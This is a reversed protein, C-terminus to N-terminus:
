VSVPRTPNSADLMRLHEHALVVILFVFVEVGPPGAFTDGGIGIVLLFVLIGFVSGRRRAAEQRAPSGPGVLASLTTRIVVWGLLAAGVLGLNLLVEPVAGHSSGAWPFRELLISRSALFGHGLFPHDQILTSVYDWLEVRGTLSLFEEGSQGRLLYVVIPNGNGLALEAQDFRSGIAHLGGAFAAFVTCMVLAAVVPRMRRQAWVALAGAVFGLIPTREHTGILVLVFAIIIGWRVLGAAKPGGSFAVGSLLLLMGIGACAGAFGPHLFFWSFLGPVYTYRAWPFVLALVSGLLVYAIIAVTLTRLSQNPGLRRMALISLAYLIILQMARGLTVRVDASWAASVTALAVYGGLVAEVPLVPITHAQRRSLHLGANVLVIVLVAAYCALEFIVQGDFDGQLLATAERIRFKTIAAIVIFFALMLAIRSYRVLLVGAVLIALGLVAALWIDPDAALFGALGALTGLAILVMPYGPNPVAKAPSTPM